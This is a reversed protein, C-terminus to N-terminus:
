GTVSVSGRNFIYLTDSGQGCWHGEDRDIGDVIARSDRDTDTVVFFNLTRDAVIGETNTVARRDSPMEVMWWVVGARTFGSEM